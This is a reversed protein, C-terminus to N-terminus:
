SSRWASPVASRRGRGEASLWTKNTIKKRTKNTIEKRTKAPRRKATETTVKTNAARGGSSSIRPGCPRRAISIEGTRPYSIDLLLSCLVSDPILQQNGPRCSSRPSRQRWSKCGWAQAPGPWSCMRQEEAGFGPTAARRRSAPAESQQNQAAVCHWSPLRIRGLSM